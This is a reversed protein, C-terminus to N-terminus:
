EQRSQPETAEDEKQRRLKWFNKLNCRLTYGLLLYYNQIDDAFLNEAVPKKDETVVKDTLVLESLRRVDEYPITLLMAVIAMDSVKDKLVTILGTRGSVHLAELQNKASATHGVYASGGVTMKFERTM